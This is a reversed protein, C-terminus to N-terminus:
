SSRLLTGGFGFGLLVQPADKLYILFILTGGLLGLGDTLMGTVTGTRYAVKLSERFSKGAVVATRINGQVAINMGLFGVMASFFAGMLFAAARGLSISFPANALAASLYLFIALVGILLIISKFQRRLYANAGQKVGNWVELIKGSGKSLKLVQRSLLFAYFLAGLAVIIITYLATQEFPSPVQAM